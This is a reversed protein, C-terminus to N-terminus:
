IAPVRRVLREKPCTRESGPELRQIAARPGSWKVVGLNPQEFVFRMGLLGERFDISTQRDAGCLTITASAPESAEADVTEKPTSSSFPVCDPASRVPPVVPAITSAAGRGPARWM